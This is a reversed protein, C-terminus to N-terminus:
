AGGGDNARLDARGGDIHLIHTAAATARHTAFLVCGQPPLCALAQQVLAENDADLYAAPEDLLLLPPQRVLARALAVRQQQGGSLGSGNEGVTVQGWDGIGCANSVSRLLADDADPAAARINGGVTGSFLRPNQGIWGIRRRWAAMDIQSLPLGNVLVQGATPQLFGLLLAILTSKGSGSAGTLAVRMGAGFTCSINQFVAAGGDYAFSLGRLEIALPGAPVPATGHVAAVPSARLAVIKEAAGIAEMRAHHGAGLRRLPLYFEPVLLLVVFGQLFAMEGWLLRFGVTVAVMAISVTAFFEMALSSLFAVRLVAMTDHRFAEGLERITRWERTSAHFFRLTPLGQILDFFRGGMYTMRRWQRQSLREAGRGIWIMFVPILPATVLLIFGSALDLPFVIAAIGLPLVAAMVRAPLAQAYYAHLAEVGEDYVSLAAGTMDGTAGRGLRSLLGQRIQAKLAEAWQYAKREAMFTAAGRACFASVLLALRGSIDALGAAHFLADNVISALLVAGAVTLAGAVGQFFVSAGFMPRMQKATEKLFAQVPDLTADTASSQSPSTDM